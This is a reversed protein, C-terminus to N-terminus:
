TLNKRAAFFGPNIGGFIDLTTKPYSIGLIPDMSTFSQILDVDSRTARGKGPWYKTHKVLSAIIARLRKRTLEEEDEEQKMPKKRPPQSPAPRKPPRTRKRTKM